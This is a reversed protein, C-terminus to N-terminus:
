QSVGRPPSLPPQSSRRLLRSLLSGTKGSTTRLGLDRMIADDSGMERLRAYTERASAEKRQCQDRQAKMWAEVTAHVRREFEQDDRDRQAARAITEEVRRQDAEAATAELAAAIRELAAILRAIM